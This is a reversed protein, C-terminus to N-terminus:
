VFWGMGQYYGRLYAIQGGHVCNDFVMVGLFSGISAAPSPPINLKCATKVHKQDDSVNHKLAKKIVRHTLCSKFFVFQLAFQKLCNRYFM